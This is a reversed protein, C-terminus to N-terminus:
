KSSKALVHFHVPRTWTMDGDTRSVQGRHCVVIVPEIDSYRSHLASLLFNAIDELLSLGGDEIADHVKEFDDGNIPEFIFGYYKSDNERCSWARRLADRSSFSADLPRAKVMTDGPELLVVSDTVVEKLPAKCRLLYGFFGKQPSVIPMPGDLACAAMITNLNHTLRVSRHVPQLMSIHYNQASGSVTTVGSTGTHEAVSLSAAVQKLPGPDTYVIM